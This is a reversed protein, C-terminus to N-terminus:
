QCHDCVYFIQTPPSQRIADMDLDHIHFNCRGLHNRLSVLNHRELATRLASTVQHVITDLGNVQMVDVFLTFGGFRESSIQFERLTNSMNKNSDHKNKEDATQDCGWNGPGCGRFFPFEACFDTSARFACRTTYLATGRAWLCILVTCRLCASM